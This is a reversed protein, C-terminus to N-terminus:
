SSTSGRPSSTACGACGPGVYTQNTAAQYDAAHAPARYDGAAQWQNPAADDPDTETYTKWHYGRDAKWKRTYTTGHWFGIHACETWPGLKGDADQYFVKVFHEIGDPQQRAYDSLRPYPNSGDSGASGRPSRSRSRNHMGLM